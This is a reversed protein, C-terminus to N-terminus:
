LEVQVDCELEDMSQLVNRPDVASKCGNGVHSRVAEVISHVAIKDSFRELIQEERKVPRKLHLILDRQEAGNNWWPARREVSGIHRRVAGTKWCNARQPSRFTHCFLFSHEILLGHLLQPLFLYM